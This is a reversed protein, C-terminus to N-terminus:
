QNMKMVQKLSDYNPIQYQMNWKRNIVKFSYHSYPGSYITNLPIYIRGRVLGDAAPVRLHVRGGHGLGQVGQPRAEPRQHLRRVRGRRLLRGKKLFVYTIYINPYSNSETEFNFFAHSIALKM